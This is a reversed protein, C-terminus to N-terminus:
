SSGTGPHTRAASRAGAANGLVPPEQEGEAPKLARRPFIKQLLGEPTLVLCTVFTANTRDVVMVPGGEKLQVKDGQAYQQEMAPAIIM